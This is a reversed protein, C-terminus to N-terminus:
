PVHQPNENASYISTESVDSFIYGYTGYTTVTNGGTLGKYVYMNFCPLQARDYTHNLTGSKCEVPPRAEIEIIPISNSTVTYPSGQSKKTWVYTGSANPAYFYYYNATIEIELPNRNPPYSKNAYLLIFGKNNRVNTTVQSFSNHTLSSSGFIVGSLGINDANSAGLNSNVEQGVVLYNYINLGTQNYPSDDDTRLGSYGYHSSNKVSDSTGEADIYLKDFDPDPIPTPTPPIPTNTPIPTPNANSFAALNIDKVFLGNPTCTNSQWSVNARDHIASCAFEPLPNTTPHQGDDDLLGYTDLVSPYIQCSDDWYCGNPHARQFLVCGYGGVILYVNDCRGSTTITLALPTELAKFNYYPGSDDCKWPNSVDNTQSPVVNLAPNVYSADPTCQDATKAYLNDSPDLFRIRATNPEPDSGGCSNPHGYSDAGCSYITAGSGGCDSAGCSFSRCFTVGLFTTKCCHCGAFVSNEKLLFFLSFICFIILFISNKKM